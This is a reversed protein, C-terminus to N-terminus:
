NDTIINKMKDARQLNLILSKQFSGSPLSQSLPFSPGTGIPPTMSLLDKTCNKQQHAPSQEMGTTQGSTLSDVRGEVLSEQVSMPLDSETEQPSM